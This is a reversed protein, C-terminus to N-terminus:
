LSFMNIIKYNYVFQKLGIDSTPEEKISVDLQEKKVEESKLHAIEQEQNNNVKKM